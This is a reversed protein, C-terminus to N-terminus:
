VERLLELGTPGKINGLKVNAHCGSWLVFVMTGEDSSSYSQHVSGIQNACCKGQRTCNRNVFRSKDDGDDIVMCHEFQDMMDKLKKESPPAINFTKRELKATPHIYDALKIEMLEGQMGIILELNPHAKRTYILYFFAQNTKERYQKSLM